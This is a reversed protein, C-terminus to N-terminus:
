DTLKNLPCKLCIDSEALEFGEKEEDWQEPWKCYHNCMETVIDQMQQVITKEKKPSFVEIM